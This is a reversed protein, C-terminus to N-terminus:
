RDPLQGDPPNCFVREARNPVALESRDVLARAQALRDGARGDLPERSYFTIGDKAFSHAFLPQPYAQLAFYAVAVLAVVKEARRSWVAIRTKPVPRSIGLM